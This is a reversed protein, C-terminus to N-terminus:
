PDVLIAARATAQEADAATGDAGTRKWLDPYANFPYGGVLIKMKGLSPEERVLRITDTLTRYHFIMSASLGLLDPRYERLAAVVAHAPTNAGLYYADWGSLEFLDAVMRAGVEHLEGGACAVVIKRGTKPSSLIRPYLRAIVHQTVATCFHEKAVSLANTQWRYGVEYQTQQLVRLYVDRLDAGCDVAQDILREAGHRDGRLLADLYLRALGVLPQGDDALFSGVQRLEGDCVALGADLYEIAAECLPSPLRECLVRRMCQLAGVTAEAPFGLNAFVGRVWAIYDSFIRPESAALASALYSLHFGADRVALERGRPGFRNWLAPQQAYQLDTIEEALQASQSALTKALREHHGDEM